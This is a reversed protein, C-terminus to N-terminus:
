DRTQLYARFSQQATAVETPSSTEPSIVGAAAKKSFQNFRAQALSSTSPINYIYKFLCIGAHIVDNKSAETDMSVDLHDDVNGSCLKDLLPSKGHGMIASVTDRGTSAHCPLLIEKEKWYPCKTNRWVM